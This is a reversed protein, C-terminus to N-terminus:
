ACRRQIAGISEIWSELFQGTSPHPVGTDTLIVSASFVGMRRM